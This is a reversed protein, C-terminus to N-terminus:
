SDCIGTVRQDRMQIRVSNAAVWGSLGYSSGIEFVQSGACEVVERVPGIGPVGGIDVVEIGFLINGELVHDFQHAVVGEFCVDVYEIGRNPEDFVTHLVLTGNECDVCYSYVNNDHIHENIESL